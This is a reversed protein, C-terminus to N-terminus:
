SFVLWHLVYMYCILFIVALFGPDFEQVPTELREAARARGGAVSVPKGGGAAKGDRKGVDWSVASPERSRQAVVKKAAGQCHKTAQAEATATTPFSLSHRYDAQQEKEKAAESDSVEQKTATKHDDRRKENGQADKKNEAAKRGSQVALGAPGSAGYMRTLDSQVFDLTVKLLGKVEENRRRLQRMEDRMAAHAKKMEEMTAENTTLMEYLEQMMYTNQGTTEELTAKYKSELESIEDKTEATTRRIEQMIAQTIREATKDLEKNFLEVMMTAPQFRPEEPVPPHGPYCDAPYLLELPYAPADGIVPPLKIEDMLGDSANVGAAGVQQKKEVKKEESNRETDFASEFSVPRRGSVLRQLVRPAFGTPKWDSRQGNGVEQKLQAMLQMQYDPLAGNSQGRSDQGSKNNSRPDGLQVNRDLDKEIDPNGMEQRAMMLWQEPGGLGGPPGWFDLIEPGPVSSVVPPSPSVKTGAPKSPASPVVSPEPPPPLRVRAAPIQHKVGGRRGRMRRRLGIESAVGPELREDDAAGEEDEGRWEEGDIREEDLEEVFAPEGLAQKLSKILLLSIDETSHLPKAAEPLANNDQALTSCMAGPAADGDRCVVRTASAIPTIRTMAAKRRSQAIQSERYQSALAPPRYM